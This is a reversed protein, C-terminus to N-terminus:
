SAPRFGRSMQYLGNESDGTSEVRVERFGAQEYMAAMEADTYVRLAQGMPGYLWWRRLSPAPLPAGMTAIVLRGGPRLVRFLEGLAREPEEVFFFVNASFAADFSHEPWPLSGADGLRLDARGSAVAAGNRQRAVKVMDPSHDIGAVRTAGAVLTREVLVGGGFGIELCEQGTIPGLWEMVARFSAEHAKPADGYTRRGLWGSPRRAIADVFREGLSSV